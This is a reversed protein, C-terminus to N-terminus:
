LKGSRLISIILWIGLLTGMLYGSLGLLEALSIKHGGAVSLTFEFFQQGSNLILSAAILSASVILGVILRNVGREMQVAIREFGSHRLEV